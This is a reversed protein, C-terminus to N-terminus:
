SLVPFGERHMTQFAVSQLRRVPAELIRWVITSERKRVEVVTEAAVILVRM